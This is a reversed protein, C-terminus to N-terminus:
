RVEMPIGAVMLVVQDAEAALRQNARGLADRYSRGVPYPPVIGWGVENSIVIWSATGRHYAAILEEVEALAAAEAEAVSASESLALVANSVLLTLCDVVVVASTEAHAIAEGAHCPVELTRWAAPRDARHSEIRTRMEDDLAQATAVFLVDDGGYEWALQQAHMSKGSRAGGLILTLTKSV